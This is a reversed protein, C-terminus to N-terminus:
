VDRSAILLITPIDVRVEDVEERNFLLVMVKEGLETVEKSNLRVEEGLEEIEEEEEVEEGDEFM